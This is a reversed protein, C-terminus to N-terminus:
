YANERKFFTQVLMQIDFWLSWNELYFLDFRVREELSTDGRLGNVQAWGTMGPKSALRANYHPVRHKFNQILEPREPRPGVLSMEGKLVNWFQPVEDLNWERLFAGIRLRRPDDKTAWRAGIGSEADLRMSRLKYIHFNRGNRGTRVQRYFISGPSELYILAGCVAIIPASLMLGVTGGIIDVARKLFRNVLRDLPLESVGLVPVGSVPELKLSSLLIQFYSPIIKFEILEKECLNSLTVIEDYGVGLDALIVVDIDHKHLLAPLDACTGLEPVGPMAHFERRSLPAPIWGAVAYAQEPDRAVLSTMRESEPTWGVFLIRQRLTRAIAPTRLLLHHYLWRWSLVAGLCAAYSCVLYVRSIPPQLKMVLSLGAFAFLWFTAGKLVILASKRFSPIKRSNYLQLYGFTVLLLVVGLGILGAYDGFVLGAPENGLTVWGSRFRLWYGLSLGGLVMALDGLVALAILFDRRFLCARPLSLRYPFLDTDGTRAPATGVNANM